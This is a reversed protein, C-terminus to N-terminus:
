FGQFREGNEIAERTLTESYGNNFILTIKEVLRQDDFRIASEIGANIRSIDYAQNIHYAINRAQKRGERIDRQTAGRVNTANGLEKFEWFEGDIEADPIKGGQGFQESLLKVRKGQKAFVEAVFVESTTTKHNQNILVFGGTNEDFYHREDELTANDYLERSQQIYNSPM